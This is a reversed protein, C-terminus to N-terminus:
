YIKKIETAWTQFVPEYIKGWKDNWFANKSLFYESPRSPEWWCLQTLSTRDNTRLGDWQDERSWKLMIQSAKITTQVGYKQPM